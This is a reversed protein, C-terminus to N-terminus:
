QYHCALLLIPGEDPDEGPITTWVNRLEIERTEGYAEVPQTWVQERPELGLKAIESKLYDASKRLGDSGTPRPSLEVIAKTHAFAAAGNVPGDSGGCSCLGTALAVCLSGAMVLPRSAIGNM